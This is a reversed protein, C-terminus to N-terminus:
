AVMAVGEGYITKFDNKMSIMTYGYKQWLAVRKDTETLDAHDREADDAVVMFAMAKYKNNSVTYEHMSVDGSSNGFSLVPQVGIEQAIRFVKNMKLNKQWLVDGRVLVDEGGDNFQYHLGDKDGQNAAVMTVDMGIIQDFPLALADCAVARCITRDSGSVVYVTFENEKLYEVVEIMPKYLSDGYTLGTFGQAERKLFEKVYDYFEENTLGAFAKAQATGHVIDFDAVAPTKYNKGSERILQAVEKVDDAAEYDPDELCRYELLMYELYEPFLEGCLTGDMDFVAVRDKVPIYDASGEDTVSAVYTKLATLATCDNWNDFAVQTKGGGKKCGFATAFVVVVMTFVILKKVIKM